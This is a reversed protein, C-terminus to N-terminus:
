RDNLAIELERRSWLRGTGKRYEKFLRKILGNEELFDKNGIRKVKVIEQISNTFFAEEADLLENLTFYGEKVPINLKSCLSIIFQRTIGNLIGTGVAPTFLQGKKVWFLNSVIGEAIYGDETLFIGEKNPDMGIERKAAINNLYHHSKLRDATEPTNRKLKLIVGEKEG